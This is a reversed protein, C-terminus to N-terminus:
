AGGTKKSCGVAVAYKGAAPIYVRGIPVTRYRYWSGTKDITATLMEKGIGIELDSAGGALSYTLNVDYMGPRSAKLEWIVRDEVRSWFGIRHSGPHSELKARTGDVKSDLASLVWRGDAFQQSNEATELDLDGSIKGELTIETADSNFGLILGQPVRVTNPFPTPLSVKETSDGVAVHVLGHEGNTVELASASIAFLLCFPLRMM